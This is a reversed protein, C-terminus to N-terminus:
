GQDATKTAASEPWPATIAINLRNDVHRVGPCEAATKELSQKMVRHPVTGSLTVDGDRVDFMVHVLAPFRSAHVLHEHLYQRISEDSPAAHGPDAFASRAEHLEASRHARSSGAAARVVPQEHERPQGAPESESRARSKQELDSVRARLATETQYRETCDRALALAGTIAGGADKLLAFSLDVYLKAGDKKASRTTLVRGEYKAQGTDIAKQFGAWHAARLREPIIIDLSKGLVEAESYGFLREAAANWLRIAGERDAYIMADPSQEVIAKFLDVKERESEDSTQTM